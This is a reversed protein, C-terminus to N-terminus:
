PLWASCCVWVRLPTRVAFVRCIHVVDPSLGPRHNLTEPSNCGVTCRLFATPVAPAPSYRQVLPKDVILNIPCRGRRGVSKTEAKITECSMFTVGFRCHRCCCNRCHSRLLRSDLMAEQSLIQMGRSLYRISSSSTTTTDLYNSLSASRKVSLLLTAVIM